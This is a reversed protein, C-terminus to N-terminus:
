FCFFCHKQNGEGMVGGKIIRVLGGEQSRFDLLPGKQNVDDNGPLSYSVIRSMRCSRKELRIQTSETSYFMLFIEKFHAIPITPIPKLLVSPIIITLVM